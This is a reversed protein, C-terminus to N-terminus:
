GAERWNKGMGTDVKLPVSLPYAGEMEEIVLSRTFEMEEAPVELLLEDHVQLIMRGRLGETQLRKHIRIMALKIIDAASGQIPTIIAIREGFQRISNDSSALEPLYRRRQLLTTVYGDERAQALTKEIFQNLVSSSPM